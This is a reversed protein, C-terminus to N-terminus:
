DSGDLIPDQFPLADSVGANRTPSAKVEPFWSGLPLWGFLVLCLATKPFPGPNLDRRARWAEQALGSFPGKAAKVFPEPSAIKQIDILVLATKGPEIEFDPYPTELAGIVDEITLKGL